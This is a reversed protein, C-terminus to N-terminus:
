SQSLLSDAEALTAQPICQLPSHQHQPPAGWLSCDICLCVQQTPSAATVESIELVGTRSARMSNRKLKRREREVQWPALSFDPSTAAGSLPQLPATKRWLGTHTLTLTFPSCSHSVLRAHSPLELPLSATPLPLALLSKRNYKLSQPREMKTM